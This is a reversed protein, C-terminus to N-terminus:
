DSVEDYKLQLIIAVYSMFPPYKHFVWQLNPRNTKRTSSAIDAVVDRNDEDGGSRLESEKFDLFMTVDGPKTFEPNNYGATDLIDMMVDSHPEYHKDCYTRLNEATDPAPLRIYQITDAEGEAVSRVLLLPAGRYDISELVHLRLEKPLESGWISDSANKNDNNRPAKPADIQMNNAARLVVDLRRRPAHAMPTAPSPRLSM